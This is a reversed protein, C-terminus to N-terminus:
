EWAKECDRMHIYEIAMKYCADNEGCWSGDEVTAACNPFGGEYINRSWLDTCHQYDQAANECNRFYEEGRGGVTGAMEADSLEQHFVANEAKEVAAKMYEGFAKHDPEPGLKSLGEFLEKEKMKKANEEIFAKQKETLVIKEMCVRMEAMNREPRKLEEAQERM